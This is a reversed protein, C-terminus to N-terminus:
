VIIFRNIDKDREYQLKLNHADLIHNVIYLGLGFSQNSKVDGGRFFPEFYDEIPYLLEKGKNEFIIKKDETKVVVKKDNSYKIGNDLLNKIAISFINFDVNLKINEFEKIVEDENCMLIDMSNDIIDELFYNKKDLDKKTSILEEIDAFENILSELRYFVKQMSEVNQETQPLHILIKGKTIPTKLEHMINRIFINRSEKLKKLKKASLEFENALESIEDENASSIDLDFDEDGFSKAREKLVKIPKLKNIISFYLFVFILVIVLYVVVIKNTDSSFRANDKLIMDKDPAKIFIYSNDDLVIYKLKFFKNSSIRDTRFKRSKSNKNSVINRIKDKDLIVSYDLSEIDGELEQNLGGYMYKRMFIKSVDVAKKFYTRKEQKQTYDYLLIFSVSALIFSILFIINVTFLISKKKM